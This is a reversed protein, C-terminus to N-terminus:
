GGNGHHQYSYSPLRSGGEGRVAGCAAWPSEPDAVDGLDTAGDGERCPWGFNAVGASEEVDLVNVEEWTMEGVDGIVLQDGHVTFRFPNRLGLALVRSANSSGDGVYLPNDPVGHGTVPDIRLVKGALVEPDQARLTLLRGALGNGTLYLAGDGIGVLLRGEG